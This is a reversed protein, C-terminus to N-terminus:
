SKPREALFYISVSEFVLSRTILTGLNDQKIAASAFSAIISIGILLIWSITRRYKINRSRLFLILIVGVLSILYLLFDGWGFM